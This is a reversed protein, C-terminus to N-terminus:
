GFRGFLRGITYGVALSLGLAAMPNKRARDILSQDASRIRAATESVVRVAPDYFRGIAGNVQQTACNREQDM